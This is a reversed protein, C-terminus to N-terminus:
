FSDKRHWRLRPFRATGLDDGRATVALVRDGSALPTSRRKQVTGAHFVIVDEPVADLGTIPLGKPYSAPM